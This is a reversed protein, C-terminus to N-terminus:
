FLRIAEKDCTLEFYCLSVDVPSIAKTLIVIWSGPGAVVAEAIDLRKVKDRDTFESLTRYQSPQIIPKRVLENQDRVEIKFQDNNDCAQSDHVKATSVTTADGGTSYTAIVHRVLYVLPGPKRTAVWATGPLTWSVESAVTTNSLGNTGDTLGPLDIWSSGNWYDWQTDADADDLDMNAVGTIKFSKFKYRYGFFSYDTNAPAAASILANSSEENITAMTEYLVDNADDYGMADLNENLYKAYISFTHGPRFILRRDVPVQYRYLETFLPYTASMDPHADQSLLGTEAQTLRFLEEVM